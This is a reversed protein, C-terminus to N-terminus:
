EDAAAGAADNGPVLGAGRDSIRCVSIVHCYKCADPMPDVAARGALFDAALRQIRALWERTRTEWADGPEGGRGHCTALLAISVAAIAVTRLPNNM